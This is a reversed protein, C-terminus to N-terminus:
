LTSVIYLLYQSVSSAHVTPSRALIIIRNGSIEMGTWYVYRNRNIFFNLTLYEFFDFVDCLLIAFFTYIVFMRGYLLFSIMFCLEIKIQALFQAGYLEDYFGKFLYFASIKRREEGQLRKKSTSEAWVSRDCQFVFM